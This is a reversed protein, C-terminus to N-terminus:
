ANRSLIQCRISHRRATQGACVGRAATVDTDQENDGLLIHIPAGTVPLLSERTVLETCNPYFALHAAFRLHQM